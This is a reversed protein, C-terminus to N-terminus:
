CRQVMLVLRPEETYASTVEAHIFPRRHLRGKWIALCRPPILIVDDMYEEGFAGFDNAYEDNDVSDWDPITHNPRGYTGHGKQNLTAFGRKDVRNDGHWVGAVSPYKVKLQLELRAERPVQAIYLRGTAVLGAALALKGPGDPLLRLKAHVVELSLDEDRDFFMTALVLANFSQLDPERQRIATVFDGDWRLDLADVYAAAAESLPLPCSVLNIDERLIYPLAEPSDGMVAHGFLERIM